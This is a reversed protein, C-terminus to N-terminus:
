PGPPPALRDLVASAEAVIRGILEAVTPLEAIEGVVQGTPLVGVDTRGDVLAAKTMMPANAAMVVQPWSLENGQKLARGEKLLAFMSTDTQRRFSHANALARPLNRLWSSRELHDVLDTRIVRQPAGDVATSVVTGTVPTGLYIKKVEDPVRSEQTLLFRTGMAIGDAGYALAAVLGRGDFFGGASIVAVTEGVADVVAPTLLSTPVSGTHGGGEGGQAIVADVGWGAVKEAHRRAGITPMVVLGADRCRAVLDPQPAQAFSAVRVGNDIMLAVRQGVDAVDTRMNVGFPRDTRSRVDAIAAVLEPYTMTASALIGLGGAEATAAVLRPGAVWGMGTQVIPYRVGVLRCFRTDLAPHVALAPDAPRAPDAPPAPDAPGGPRAPDAPHDRETPGRDTVRAGRPDRMGRPDLVDRILALEDPTPTRTDPVEPPIVLDFGTAEVIEEVTVGPHVSRLRMVKDPTEFDFVGLNSVVHRIEHFRSAAPGAAAARHYGVGCVVDVQEVFSRRSHNPVWYSTSHNVTNGPAGRVGVLQAKPRAWDGIASINQNGSRDIQSAMMILNRRGSWVVDFVRRFPMHSELVLTSPSVGLAPAGAVLAADGDTLVLDPAFTLRALRAGLAPATGFASAMVEGDGRFVEACAIACYEARSVGSGGATDFTSSM